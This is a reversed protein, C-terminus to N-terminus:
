LSHLYLQFQEEFSKLSQTSLTEILTSLKAHIIEDDTSSEIYLGNFTLITEKLIKQTFTMLFLACINIESPTFGREKLAHYLVLKSHKCSRELTQPSNLTQYVKFDETLYKALIHSQTSIIKKSDECVVRFKDTSYFM